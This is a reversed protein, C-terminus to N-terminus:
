LLEDRKERELQRVIERVEQTRRRDAILLADPTDVVILDNVGVLAVIKGGADIYNRQSARSIVETIAVNNESNRALLEYVANWSGLDNWGFDDAPIGVLNEARELVAYDISVNECASFTQKLRAPFRRDSFPPLADLIAATDPLHLRLQELLVRARWFFMGSNWFFREAAVYQKATREDPKERFKLVAVPVSMGARTGRPFELYGYGTEPWRPQIGLVVLQGEAAAALAPAFLRRLRAPKQIAHDSPFVGMLADPDMSCLIHAVLGIAPATNRGEPEALIQQAPVDPLQEVIRSRIEANTVVWIREPPIAPKLREYTEQILSSGGFINLVQKSCRRRSRPWFRTGHGGALILGYCNEKSM